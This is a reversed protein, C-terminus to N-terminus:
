GSQIGPRRPYRRRWSGLRGTVSCRQAPAPVRSVWARSPLAPGARIVDGRIGWGSQAVGHRRPFGHYGFRAQYRRAPVTLTGVFEGTRSFSAMGACLGTIGRARSPLAPGARIVDGRIGRGSQAVGHRRPSGHYGPGARYHRARVSLTGVFEGARSFSAMGVSLGTISRARRPIAPGARIVDGRVGGPRVSCRRAPAPVRSVWVPETDGSGCQYCGWYSGPGVSCHNM